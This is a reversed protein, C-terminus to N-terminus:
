DLSITNEGSEDEMILEMTEMQNLGDEVEFVLVLEQNGDAPITGKYSSLDDLLMTSQASITEGESTRLTFKGKKSFMDFEQDSSTMNQVDFKVVCLQHGATADMAMFFEESEEEPYSDCLEYSSYEISFDSEDFFESITESPASVVSEESLSGSQTEEGAGGIMEADKNLYAEAIEDEKVKREKAEAEEQIGVELETDSLLDRDSLESHKVLLNTAYETILATQEETLDPVESNCGCLVTLAVTLGLVKCLNRKM